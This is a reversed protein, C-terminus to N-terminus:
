RFFLACSLIDSVTLRSSLFLIALKHAFANKTGKACSAIVPPNDKNKNKTPEPM